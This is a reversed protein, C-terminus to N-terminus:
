RQGGYRSLYMLVDAYRAAERSLLKYLAVSLVILALQRLVNTIVWLDPWLINNLVMLILVVPVGFQSVRSVRYRPDVYMRAMLRFEGFFGLRDWVGGAGGAFRHVAPLLASTFTPVMAALGSPEPPPPAALATNQARLASLQDELRRLRDAMEAASEPSTVVGVPQPAPQPTPGDPGAAHAGNRDHGGEAHAADTDPDAAM